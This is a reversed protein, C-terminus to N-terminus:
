ALSNKGGLKALQCIYTCSITTVSCIATHPVASATSVAIGRPSSAEELMTGQHTYALHYSTNNFPQATLTCTGTTAGAATHLTLAITSTFSLWALHKPLHGMRINDAWKKALTQM